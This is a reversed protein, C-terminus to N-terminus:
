GYEKTKIIRTSVVIIMYDHYPKPNFYESTIESKKACEQCNITLTREETRKWDDGYIDIKIGGKRLPIPPKSM